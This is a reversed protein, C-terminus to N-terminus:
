ALQAIFFSKLYCIVLQPFVLDAPTWEGAFSLTMAGLSGGSGQFNGGDRTSSSLFLGLNYLDAELLM